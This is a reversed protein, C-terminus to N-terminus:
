QGAVTSRSQDLLRCMQAAGDLIRPTPRSIIAPDIGYLHSYRTAKLTPWRHWNRLSVPDDGNEATSIIVDPNAQLVAEISVRPALTALNGFINRGGCLHIVDGILQQDNVTMLPQDWIQLFVSITPKNRYRDRLVQLRQQFEGVLETARDDTGTLHGLSQMTGPIDDLRQPDSAFLPLGLRELTQLQRPPNGSPWSIILDPQLAVIAEIDLHNHDGIRRIQRAEDPYNSQDMTGVIRSGVGLAFLIETIHPSLSIIRRAPATLVPKTGSVDSAMIPIAAPLRGAFLTQMIAVLCVGALRRRIGSHPNHPFVSATAQGSMDHRSM